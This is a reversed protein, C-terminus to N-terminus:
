KKDVPPAPPAPAPVPAGHQGPAPMPPHMPAAGPGGPRMKSSSYKTFQEATMVKKLKADKEADLKQMDTPTPPKGSMRQADMAKVFDLCAAFTGKYQDANLGYQKELFKAQNTAMMTQRQESGNPGGPPPPPVPAGPQSAPNMPAQKAGQAMAAMSACSLLACTLILKKM